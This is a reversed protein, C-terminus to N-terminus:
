ANEIWRGYESERIKDLAKVAPGALAAIVVSVYAPDLTLNM